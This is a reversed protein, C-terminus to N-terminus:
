DTTCVHFLCFKVDRTSAFRNQLVNASFLASYLQLTSYEIKELYHPLLHSTLHYIKSLSKKCNMPSHLLLISM